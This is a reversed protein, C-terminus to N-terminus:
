YEKLSTFPNMPNVTSAMRLVPKSLVARDNVAALSYTSKGGPAPPNALSGLCGLLSPHRLPSGSPAERPLELPLCHLPQQVATLPQRLYRPLKANAGPLEALPAGLVQRGARGLCQGDALRLLRFRLSQLAFHLPKFLLHLDQLAAAKKALPIAHRLEGEYRGLPRLVGHGRQAPDDTRAEAAEVSPEGRDGGDLATGLRFGLQARLDAADEGGALPDVARWADVGLQAPFPQPM